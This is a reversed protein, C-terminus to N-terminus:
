EYFVYEFVLEILKWEIEKNVEVNNIIVEEVLMVKEIVM